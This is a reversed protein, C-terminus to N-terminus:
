QGLPVQGILNSRVHLIVQCVYPRASKGESHEVLVYSYAGCPFSFGSTKNLDFRIPRSILNQVCVCKLVLVHDLNCMAGLPCNKNQFLEHTECKKM